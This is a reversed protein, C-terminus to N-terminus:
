LEKEVLRLFREEWHDGSYLREIERSLKSAKDIVVLAKKLAAVTEDSFHAGCPSGWDDLNGENNTEIEHRLAEAFARIRHCNYDFHGGSM